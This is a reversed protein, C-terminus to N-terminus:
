IVYKVPKKKFKQIFQGVQISDVYKQKTYISSDFENDFEVFHKLLFFVNEM